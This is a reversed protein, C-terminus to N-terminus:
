LGSSASLFLIPSGRPGVLTLTPNYQSGEFAHRTCLLRVSGPDTPQEECQVSDLVTVVFMSRPKLVMCGCGMLLGGIIVVRLIVPRPRTGRMLLVYVPVWTLLLAIYLWITYELYPPAFWVPAYANLVVGLGILFLIILDNRYRRFISPIQAAM